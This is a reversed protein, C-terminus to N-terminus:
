NKARAKPAEGFFTRLMAAAFGAQTLYALMADREDEKIEVGNNYEAPIEIGRFGVVERELFEADAKVNDGAKVQEEIEKQMKEIEDRVHRKYQVEFAGVQKRGDEGQYEVRCTAWFTPTLAPRFMMQGM